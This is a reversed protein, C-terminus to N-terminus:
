AWYFSFAWATQHRITAKSWMQFLGNWNMNWLTMEGITAISWIDNRGGLVKKLRKFSTSSKKFSRHYETANKASGKGTVLVTGSSM